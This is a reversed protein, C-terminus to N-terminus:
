VRRVPARMPFVVGDGVAARPVPLLHLLLRPGFTGFVQAINQRRGLDYDAPPPTKCSEIYTLGGLLNRTQLLLLFSSFLFAPFCTAYLRLGVGLFPWRHAAANAVFSVLALPPTLGITQIYSIAMAVEAQRSSDGPHTAAGTSLVLDSAGFLSAPRTAALAYSTACLVYLTSTSLFALFCLFYHQNAHGVCANTFMCHHDMRKVM